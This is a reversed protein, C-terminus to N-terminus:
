KAMDEQWMIKVASKAIGDKDRAVCATIFAPASLGLLEAAQLRFKKGSEFRSEYKSVPKYFKTLLSEAVAQIERHKESNAAFSGTILDATIIVPVSRDSGRALFQRGDREADKLEVQEGQLAAMQLRTEIDKLETKLKEMTERIELGRDVDARVSM